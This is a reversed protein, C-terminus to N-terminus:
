QKRLVYEVEWIRRLYTTSERRLAGESLRFIENFVRYDVEVQEPDIIRWSGLRRAEHVNGDRDREHLSVKVLGDALFQYYGDIIQRDEPHELLQGRDPNQVTWNGIVAERFEDLEKNPSDTAVM